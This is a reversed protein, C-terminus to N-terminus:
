IRGSASKMWDSDDSYKWAELGAAMAERLGVVLLAEQREVEVVALPDVAVHVLEEQRVAHGLLFVVPEEGVLEAAVADHPRVVVEGVLVPDIGVAADGRAALDEAVVLDGALVV